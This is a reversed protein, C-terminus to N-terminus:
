VTPRIRTLPSNTQLESSNGTLVFSPSLPLRMGQPVYVIFFRYEGLNLRCTSQIVMVAVRSEIVAEDEEM